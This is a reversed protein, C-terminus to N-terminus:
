IKIAVIKKILLAGILVFIIAVAMMVYGPITTFLPKMHEPDIATLLAALAFPMLSVVTGQVVGQATLASIKNELKLRERITHVITDFTEALNGGTERLVIVSTVFMEIDETNMRTAFNQFAKEVPVGLRQESLILNMEQSLPNPMEDVVIQLTQMLSLGSRLSNAMLTLGDVLQLNLKKTRKTLLMEVFPRPMKFGIFIFLCALFLGGFAHPWLLLFISLGLIFPGIMLIRFANKPSLPIFMLDMKDAVWNANGVTFREISEYSILTIIFVMIASVIMALILLPSM